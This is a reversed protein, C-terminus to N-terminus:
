HTWYKEIHKALINGNKWFLKWYPLTDFGITGRKQECWFLQSKHINMGSFITNIPISEYGYTKMWHEFAGFTALMRIQRVSDMAWLQVLRRRSCDLTIRTKRLTKEFWPFGGFSCSLIHYDHYYRIDCEFYLMQYLTHCYIIYISITFYRTREWTNHIGQSIKDHWLEHHAKRFPASRHPVTRFPADQV